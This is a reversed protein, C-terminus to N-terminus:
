EQGIARAGIVPAGADDKAMAIGANFIQKQRVIGLPQALGAVGHQDEIVLAPALAFPRAIAQRREAADGVAVGREVEQGRLFRDIVATEAQVAGAIAARRHNPGGGEVGADAAGDAHDANAM